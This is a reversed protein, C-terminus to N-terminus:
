LYLKETHIEFLKDIEESSIENVNSPNWQPKNNKRGGGPDVGNNFDNRYVMRQSLQYELGLCENLPKLKAKNILKETVVLSMPCRTLLHFYLKQCFINKSKKLKSFIEKLSGHFIDEILNRNEVIESSMQPYSSSTIVSGNKIYEEKAKIILDSPLYHTALGLDMMDRSNCLNGTLGLYLGVGKPLRSLFYSAGVDPFFGIATEPMAFKAKDSVLRYKGYISLGVGGGM